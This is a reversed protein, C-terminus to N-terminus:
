QAKVSIIKWENGYNSHTKWYAKKIVINNTGTQYYSYSTEGSDEAAIKLCAAILEPFSAYAPNTFVNLGIEAADQDYLVKGSKEMVWIEYNSNSVAPEIIRGLLFPSGFLGSLAGLVQNNKVIPHIEVVAQYGEVVQFADSMVPQMTQFAKVVHAQQSIDTGQSPYFSPPEVLQLIGQPTTFVFETAFSSSRFLHQLKTRVISTDVGAGAFYAVDTVLAASLSDLSVSVSNLVTSLVAPFEPEDDKNCCVAFMLGLLCLLGVKTKV